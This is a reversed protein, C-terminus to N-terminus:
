KYNHKKMVKNYERIKIHQAKKEDHEKIEDMNKESDQIVSYAHKLARHTINRWPKNFSTHKRLYLFREQVIKRELEVDSDTMVKVTYLNYHNVNDFDSGKCDDLEIDLTVNLANNVPIAGGFHELTKIINSVRLHPTHSDYISQCMGVILAGILVIILTAIFLFLTATFIIEAIHTDQLYTTFDNIITNM